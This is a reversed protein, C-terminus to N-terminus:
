KPVWPEGFRLGVLGPLGGPTLTVVYLRDFEDQQFPPITRGTLARIIEPLTNFHGVVLVTKGWHGARLRRVTEAVDEVVTLSEGLAQALPLATDRNRRYPTVYIASIGSGGLAHLLAQARREGAPSLAPDVAATDKEAHRVLVITKVLSEPAATSPPVLPRPASAAPGALAALLVTVRVLPALRRLVSAPPPTM